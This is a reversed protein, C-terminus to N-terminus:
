SIMIFPRVKVFNQEDGNEQESEDSNEDEVDVLLDRPIRANSLASVLVRNQARIIKEVRIIVAIIRKDVVEPPIIFVIVIEQVYGAVSVGIIVVYLQKPNTVELRTERVNIVHKLARSVEETINVGVSWGSHGSM